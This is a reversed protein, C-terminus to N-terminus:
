LQVPAVGLSEKAKHGHEIADSRAVNLRCDAIQLQVLIMIADPAVASLRTSYYTAISVCAFVNVM